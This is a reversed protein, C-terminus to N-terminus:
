EYDASERAYRAERRALELPDDDPYGVDLRSLDNGYEANLRLRLLNSVGCCTLCRCDHDPQQCECDECPYVDHSIYLTTFEPESM